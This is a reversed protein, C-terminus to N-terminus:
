PIPGVWRQRKWFIHIFTECLFQGCGERLVRTFMLWCALLTFDRTKKRWVLLVLPFFFACNADFAWKPVSNNCIWKKSYHTKNVKSQVNQLQYSVTKLLVTFLCDKLAHTHRNFCKFIKIVIVFTLFPSQLIIIFYTCMTGVLLM